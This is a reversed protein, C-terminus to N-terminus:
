VVYMTWIRSIPMAARVDARRGPYGASEGVGRGRGEKPDAGVVVPKDRLATNHRAEVSAYFADMDVHAIIRVRSAYRLAPAPHRSGTRALLPPLRGPAGGVARGSSARVPLLSAHRLPLASPLPLGQAPRHREASRGHPRHG